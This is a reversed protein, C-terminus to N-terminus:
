TTGIKPRKQSIDVFHQKDYTMNSLKLKKCFVDIGVLPIPSPLSGVSFSHVTLWNTAKSWVPLSSDLSIQGLSWNRPSVHGCVRNSDVDSGVEKPFERVTGMFLVLLAVIAFSIGQHFPPQKAMANTHPSQKM